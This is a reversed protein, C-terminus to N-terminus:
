VCGFFVLSAGLLCQKVAQSLTIAAVDCSGISGLVIVFGAVVLFKKM